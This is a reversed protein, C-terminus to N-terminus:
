RKVSERQAAASKDLLLALLGVAGAGSLILPAFIPAGAALNFIPEHFGGPRRHIGRAHYFTGALGDAIMLWSAAPMWRRFATHSTLAATSTAFLAASCALPTWMSWQNFSGRYHEIAAEAGGILASAVSTVTLLKALRRAVRGLDDEEGRLAEIATRTSAVVPENVASPLASMGPM